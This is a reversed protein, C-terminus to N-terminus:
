SFSPMPIIPTETRTELGPEPPRDQFLRRRHPPLATQVRLQGQRRPDPNPRVPLVLAPLGYGLGLPWVVPRLGGVGGPVLSVAGQRMRVPRHRHGCRALRLGLAHPPQAPIPLHAPLDPRHHVGSDPAPLFLDPRNGPLTATRLPVPGPQQHIQIVSTAFTSLLLLLVLVLAMMFQQPIAVYFPRDQRIDWARNVARNVGVLVTRAFWLLVFFAIIGLANNSLANSLLVLGGINDDIFQASGPINETAFDLFAQQVGTSNLSMGVLAVVGLFLPVMSVIAYYAVGAALHTADGQAMGIFARYVVLLARPEPLSPPLNFGKIAKLPNVLPLGM